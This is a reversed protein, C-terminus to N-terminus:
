KMSDCRSLFVEWAYITDEEAAIRISGGSSFSVSDLKKFEAFKLPQSAVFLQWLAKPQKLVLSWLERAGDIFSDAASKNRILVCVCLLSYNFGIYFTFQHEM